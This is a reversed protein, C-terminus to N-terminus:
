KGGKYPCLWFVGGLAYNASCSEGSAFTYTCLFSPWGNKCFTLQGTGQGSKYPHTAISGCAAGAEGCAMACAWADLGRAKCNIYANAPMQPAAPEQPKSNCEAEPFRTGGSGSPADGLSGGAGGPVIPGGGVTADGDGQGVPWCEGVTQNCATVSLLAVVANWLRNKM